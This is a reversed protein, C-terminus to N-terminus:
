FKFTFYSISSEFWYPPPSPPKDLFWSKYFDFHIANKQFSFIFKSSDFKMIMEAVDFNCGLGRENRATGVKFKKFSSDIFDYM